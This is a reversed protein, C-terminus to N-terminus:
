LDQEAPVAFSFKLNKGSNVKSKAWAISQFLEMDPKPNNRPPTIM